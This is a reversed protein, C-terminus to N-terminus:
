SSAGDGAEGLMGALHWWTIGRFDARVMDAGAAALREASESTTVALCRMGASKAAQVGAAADELVICRAPPIGLRAAGLLFIAPDPKSRTVEAATVVAGFVQQLRFRGIIFRANEPPGSTVLAMKAAMNAPLSVLAAFLELIGPVPALTPGYRERYFAEKELSIRALQEASYRGPFLDALAEENKRGSITQYFMEETVVVGLKEQSFALWTAQHAPNSLVIVGDMDSLVAWPALAREDHTLPM